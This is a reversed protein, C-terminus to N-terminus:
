WIFSWFSKIKWCIYESITFPFYFRMSSTSLEFPFLKFFCHHCWYFLEDWPFLSMFFLLSQCSIRLSLFFIIYLFTLSQQIILLSMQFTYLFFFPFSSHSLLNASISVCHFLCLLCVYFSPLSLLVSFTSRLRNMFDSMPAIMLFLSFIYVFISHIFLNGKWPLPPTFDVIYLFM